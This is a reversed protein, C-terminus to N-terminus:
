PTTSDRATVNTPHPPKTNLGCGHVKVMQQNFNSSSHYANTLVVLLM